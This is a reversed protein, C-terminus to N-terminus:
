YRREASRRFQRDRPPPAKYLTEVIWLLHLMGEDALEKTLLEWEPHAGHRGLTRLEHARDAVEDTLEGSARLSNIQTALDRGDADKDACISHITRRAMVGFAQYLEHKLCEAAEGLDAEVYEPIAIRRTLDAIALNPQPPHTKVLEYGDLEHISNPDLYFEAILFRSCPRRLCRFIVELQEGYYDEGEEDFLTAGHCDMVQLDESRCYPCVPQRSIKIEQNHGSDDTLILKAM